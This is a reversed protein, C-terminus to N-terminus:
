CNISILLKVHAFKANFFLRAKLFSLDYMLLFQKRTEGVLAM